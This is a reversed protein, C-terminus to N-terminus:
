GKPVLSTGQSPDSVITRGGDAMYISVEVFIIINPGGEGRVAGM